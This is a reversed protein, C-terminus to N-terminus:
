NTNKWKEKRQIKRLHKLWDKRPKCYRCGKRRNCMECPNMVSM